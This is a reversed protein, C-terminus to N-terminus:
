PLTKMFRRAEAPVRDVKGELLIEKAELNEGYYSANAKRDAALRVGDLAIGAFLGKSRSYSVIEANMWLDTSAEISRGKPGAAVSADVGLTFKSKLLSQVSKGTLFFLILDTSEGGIQLGWSGGSIKFFAPASWGHSGKCSIIGRGHRGGWVLAGKIVKPFVAVCEAKDLLLEPFDADRAGFLEEYVEQARAVKRRLKDDAAAAPIAFAWPVAAAFALFMRFAGYRSM